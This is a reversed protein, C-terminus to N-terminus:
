MRRRNRGVVITNLNHLSLLFNWVESVTFTKQQDDNEDNNNMLRTKKLEQEVKVETQDQDQKPKLNLQILNLV